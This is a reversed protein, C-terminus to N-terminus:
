ILLSKSGSRNNFRQLQDSCVRIMMTVSALRLLHVLDHPHYSQSLIDATKGTAIMYEGIQRFPHFHSGPSNGGSFSFDPSPFDVPTPTPSSPAM